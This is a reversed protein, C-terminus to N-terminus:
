LYTKLLKKETGIAILNQWNKPLDSVKVYKQMNMEPAKKQKYISLGLKELDGYFDRPVDYLHGNELTENM